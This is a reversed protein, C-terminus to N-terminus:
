HGFEMLSYAAGGGGPPNLLCYLSLLFSDTFKIFYVSNWVNLPPYPYPPSTLPITPSIKLHVLNLYLNFPCYKLIRFCLMLCHFIYYVVIKLMEIYIVSYYLM